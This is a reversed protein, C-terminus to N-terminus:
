ADSNRLAVFTTMTKTRDWKGRTQNVTISLTVGNNEITASAAEVNECIVVGGPNYTLTQLDQDYTLTSVMGGDITLTWLIDTGDYSVAKAARLSSNPLVGHVIREMAYGADYSTGMELEAIRWSSSAALYFACAAALTIAFLVQSIMVEVITFGNTKYTDSKM